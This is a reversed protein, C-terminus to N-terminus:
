LEYKITKNRIKQREVAFRLTRPLAKPDIQGKILYDQAGARVSRLGLEEREDSTMVVIPSNPVMYHVSQFTEFGRCDPLTLDLIILDPRQFKLFELSNKMTDKIIMDFSPFQGQDFSASLVERLFLSDGPDDETVLIRIPAEEGTIDEDEPDSEM